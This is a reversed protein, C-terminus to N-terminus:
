GHRERLFADLAQATPAGRIGDAQTCKLAAAASAYACADVSQMGRALALTLAGHFVDGAGTTDIAQVPFAPIRQRRGDSVLVVGHAGLTVAACGAGLYIARLLAEEQAVPGSWAALGPESFVAWAALPVLAALDHQPAVDADFVSLRGHARAWMLAARAGGPWRPDVLVADCGDFVADEPLHAGALANGRHNFIHREGQRDVIIASASTHTGPVEQLHTLDIGEAALQRRVMRGADDPGVAGVFRVRAGLRACALAANAAMGGGVSEYRHAPTKTAREPFSDIQFVHDIACHGVCAILPQAPSTERPSDM